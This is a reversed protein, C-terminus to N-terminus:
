NLSIPTYVIKRDRNSSGSDGEQQQKEMKKYSRTAMTQTEHILQIIQQASLNYHRVKMNAMAQYEMKFRHREKDLPRIEYFIKLTDTFTIMPKDMYFMDLVFVGRDTEIEEEILAALHATPHDTYIDRLREIKQDYHRPRGM